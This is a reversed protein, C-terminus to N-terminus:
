SGREWSVSKWCKIPYGEWCTRMDAGRLRGDWPWSCRTYPFNALGTLRHWLPPGNVTIHKIFPPFQKNCSDLHWTLCVKDFVYTHFEITRAIPWLPGFKTAQGGHDSNVLNQWRSGMVLTFVCRLVLTWKQTKLSFNWLFSWASLIADAFVVMSRSFITLTIKHSMTMEHVTHEPHALLQDYSSMM